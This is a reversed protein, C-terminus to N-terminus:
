KLFVMAAPSGLPLYKGTFKPVGDTGIRFATVNDAKQNLSYLFEGSPDLALSRPTDGETPVNAIRKVNDGDASFVGISDETRNGFYLRKGDKSILLESATNSGAYGDPLGSVSTGEQTLKGAKFDFVALRSDQELLQYMTKGDPSFVFHRPAAGPLVKTVSVQNLKGSSTDLKWVFIQDRGADDGIVFQGSRDPGIMHGRSGRHDSTAFQGPQTDKATPPNLPGSPKVVDTAEGLSGDPKIRIIAYAGGTYDAVMAFHGSPHLSIYAPIAGESSVTNLLKLAGGAGVAFASVSGSKAPGYSAVESVAYLFKGGASLAMWSPSLTKAALRAHSIAGTTGDVDVLYIGDGHNAAGSRPEAPDATYTGIYAHLTAAEAPAAFALAAAALAAAKLCSLCAM